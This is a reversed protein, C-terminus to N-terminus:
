APAYAEMRAEVETRTLGLLGAVGFRQIAFSAMVMGYRLARHLTEQDERRAEALHGLFGGAVADGAGTPDQPPDVPLAPVHDAGQHNYLTAGKPGEKIILGRLNFRRRLAATADDLNATQALAMAEAGNLILYDLRELVPELEERRERIYLRMTDGAVIGANELQDLVRSQYRPQM